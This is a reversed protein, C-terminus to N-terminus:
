TNAKARLFILSQGRGTAIVCAFGDIIQLMSWTNTKKNTTIVYRDKGDSGGWIPEEKYEPGSLSKIVQEVNSCLVQKEVVFPENAYAVSSILGLLFALITKRM